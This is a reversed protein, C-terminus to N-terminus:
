WAMLRWWVGSYSAVGDFVGVGSFSDASGATDVGDFAVIVLLAM